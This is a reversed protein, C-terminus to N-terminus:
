DITLQVNEYPVSQWANLIGIENISTKTVTKQQLNISVPEAFIPTDLTIKNDQWNLQIGGGGYLEPLKIGNKFFFHIDEESPNKEHLCIFLSLNDFFRLLEYHALFKEKNFRKYQKLLRKKRDTETQVFQKCYINSDNQLFRVYHHSCLLAAYNDRQAVIDIGSKYLVSKITNPLTIFDYPMSKKDNWTPSLDFPKWGVDHLDIALRISYRIDNQKITFEEKISEYLQGSISAHHHQDIMIFTDERERVIM